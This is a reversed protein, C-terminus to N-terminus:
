ASTRDDVVVVVESAVSRATDILVAMRELPPDRVLMALSVSM